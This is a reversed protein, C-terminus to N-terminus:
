VCSRHQEPVIVDPDAACRACLKVGCATCASGPEEGPVDDFLATHGCEDWISRGDCTIVDKVHAACVLEKSSTVAVAPARCKQDAACGGAICEACVVAIEDVDVAGQLVTVHYLTRNPESCLTCRRVPNAMLRVNPLRHGVQRVPPERRERPPGSGLVNAWKKRRDARRMM